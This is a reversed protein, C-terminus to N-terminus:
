HAIRGENKGNTIYHIYYSKNDCEFVSFLDSNNIKYIDLNFEDSAQRGECIGFNIFHNFLAKADNGFANALDTYNNYYYEPNFVISYDIGDVIYDTDTSSPTQPFVIRGETKGNTIYHIYYSKIDDGFVDILDPNNTKYAKVDFEKCAQRSEYIGANIFHNFLKKVDSGIISAIDSYNDFYYAPDFVASYDIGDIVYGADTSSNIPTGLRGEAKGNTIFHVYYLRTNDGFAAVLDPYNSKYASPIFSECAQRGEYIGANIFHSFLLNADNGFANALDTYHSYYYDSDFVASYDIGDVVYSPTDPTVPTDPVDPTDPTSAAANDSTFAKVCLNGWLYSYFYNGSKYFTKGNGLSVACDWIMISLDDGTAISTAQECDLAAKDVNVVVAFTSGPTIEVSDNLEITYVGAYATTGQTTAAEQKTGSLPNSADALNTYVEITYSVNAMSTLSISVASLTESQVNADNKATFVNAMTGYSVPYVELGGDVQYNNDYGDDAAFDFVWATDTLSATDYSMWFYDAYSGWSNRVLWAGDNSPQTGVFNDKSYEDDWGVIMVAHGYGSLSTDYYTYESRTSNWKLGGDAHYYMIGAAGHEMIQRKVDDANEKINIRYTNQLHAVDANYAYKDSIGTTLVNAANSYPVDAEPVAGVWQALRRSAMAYNGGYNLYTNQANENYYRASDGDTGGLPDTVSNFLFYVLQLESLDINRDATGDNILDFEALGISSFAWCTGYPNQNRSDPYANKIEVVDSQYSSPVTSYFAFDSEYVPANNDLESPIYGPVFDDSPADENVALEVDPIIPTYSCDQAYVTSLPNLLMGAITIGSIIKKM